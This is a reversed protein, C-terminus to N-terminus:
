RFFRVEVLEFTNERKTNPYALALCNMDIVNNCVRLQQQGGVLKAVSVRLAPTPQTNIHQDADTPLSFQKQNIIHICQHIFTRLDECEQCVLGQSDGMAQGTEGM